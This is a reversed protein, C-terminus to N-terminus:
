PKGIPARCTSSAAIIAADDAGTFRQADFGAMRLWKAMKGVNHDVIFKLETNQM